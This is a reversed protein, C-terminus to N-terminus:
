GRRKARRPAEAALEPKAPRRLLSHPPKLHRAPAGSAGAVEPLFSQRCGLAALSFRAIHDALRDLTYGRYEERGVILETVTGQIRFHMCQAFISIGALHVEAAPTDHPLLEGLVDFLQQFKPRVSEVVIELTTQTPEAMARVMIADAWRPLNESLMAALRARILDRLKTEPPTRPPWDLDQESAPTCAAAKVVETYLGQKDGFHYNIAALNAGARACIERVSAAEFGKEAFIEAAAHILRVPTDDARPSM